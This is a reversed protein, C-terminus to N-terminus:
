GRNRIKWKSLGKKNLQSQPDTVIEKKLAIVVVKEVLM